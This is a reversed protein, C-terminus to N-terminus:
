CHVDPLKHKSAFADVIIRDKFRTEENNYVIHIDAMNVLETFLINSVKKYYKKDFDNMSEIDIDKSTYYDDMYFRSDKSMQTPESTIEIKLQPMEYKIYFDDYSRYEVDLNKPQIVKDIPNFLSSINTDLGCVFIKDKKRDKIFLGTLMDSKKQKINDQTDIYLIYILWDDNLVVFWIGDYLFYNNFGTVTETWFNGKGIQNNNLTGNIIKGMMPNYGGWENPCHTRKFDFLNKFNEYRSIFAPITTSYEDISLTFNLLANNTDIFIEITDNNMDIKQVYSNNHKIIIKNNELYTKINRFDIDITTYKKISKVLDYYYLRLIAMNSFKNKLQIIAWITYRETNFFFYNYWFSLINKEYKRIKQLRAPDNIGLLINETLNKISEKNQYKSLDHMPYVYTFYVVFYLLIIIIIIYLTTNNKRPM